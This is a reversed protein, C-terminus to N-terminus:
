LEEVYDLATTATSNELAHLLVLTLDPNPTDLRLYRYLASRQTNSYGFLSWKRLTPLLRILASEAKTRSEEDWQTAEALIGLHHASRRGSNVDDLAKEFRDRSRKRWFFIGELLSPMTKRRTAFFDYKRSIHSDHRTLVTKPKM